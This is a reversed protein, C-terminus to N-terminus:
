SQPRQLLDVIEQDSATLNAVQEPGIRAIRLVRQEPVMYRNRNATYYQQLDADTPKLGSRFAGIPVVAGEGERSELLM